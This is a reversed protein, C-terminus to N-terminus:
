LFGQVNNCTSISQTHLWKRSKREVLAASWTQRCGYFVVMHRCLVILGCKM